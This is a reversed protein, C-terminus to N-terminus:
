RSWPRSGTPGRQASALCVPEWQGPWGTVATTLRFYVAQGGLYLIPGGLLLVGGLGSRSEDPRAIVLEAGAAFTVLGLVVAYIVNIQLHVAFRTTPGRPTTSHPKNLEASPQIM